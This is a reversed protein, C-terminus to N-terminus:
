DSLVGIVYNESISLFVQEKVKMTEVMHNEVIVTDNENIKSVCDPSRYLVRYVGYQEMPKEKTSVFIPVDEKEKEPNLDIKQLSLRKNRPLFIM